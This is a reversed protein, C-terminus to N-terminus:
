KQRQTYDRVFIAVTTAIPISFVLGIVDLYRYGVMMAFIIIIPSLGVAKNMIKPVLINNEVQQIALYYISMWVSLAPSQNLVIPFTILWAIFRGVVPIVMSIGAILSLTLAYDVGMVALGVYSFVGAVISVLLQGRLWLGVQDKVDEIKQSIYKAHRSPFISRFFNDISAEEVTMFFTLTLVIILNFLGISINLLQDRIFDFAHQLQSAASQVDFTQFFQDIYPQLSSSISISMVGDKNLDAVWEGVSYAIGSVQVYVLSVVNSIFLGLLFFLVIYIIIMSLSRPVRFEQFKDVVPDLAAALLFSIFFILLIGSIDQIFTFLTLLLLVVITVRAVKGLTMDITVEDASSKPVTELLARKPKKIDDNSGGLLSRSLGASWNLVHRWWKSGTNKSM